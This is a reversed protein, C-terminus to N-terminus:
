SAGGIQAASLVGGERHRACVRWDLRRAVAPETCRVLRGHTQGCAPCREDSYDLAQCRGGVAPKM